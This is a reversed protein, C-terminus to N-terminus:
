DAKTTHRDATRGRAWQPRATELAASSGGGVAADGPTGASTPAPGKAEIENRVLVCM